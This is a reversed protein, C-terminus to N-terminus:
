IITFCNKLLPTKGGKVISVATTSSIFLFLGVFLKYKIEVM